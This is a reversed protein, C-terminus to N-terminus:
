HFNYVHCLTGPSLCMIILLLFPSVRRGGGGREEEEEKAEKQEEEREGRAYGARSLKVDLPEFSSPNRGPVDRERQSRFQRFNPRGLCSLGLSFLFLFFTHNSTSSIQM